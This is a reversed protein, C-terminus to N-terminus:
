VTIPTCSKAGTKDGCSSSMSKTFKWVKLVIDWGTPLQWAFLGLNAMNLAIHANRAAENGKSM